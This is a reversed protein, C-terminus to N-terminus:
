ALSIGKRAARRRIQRTMKHIEANKAGAAWQASFAKGHGPASARKVIVPMGAPDLLFTPMRFM